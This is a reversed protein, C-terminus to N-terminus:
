KKSKEKLTALLIPIENQVLHYIILLDIDEYQHSIMNRLGVIQIWNIHNMEEKAKISLKRATEGIQELKLIVADSKEENMCFSDFDEVPMMYEYIKNIYRIIRDVYVEDKM